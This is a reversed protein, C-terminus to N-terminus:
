EVDSNEAEPGYHNFGSKKRFQGLAECWDASIALVKETVQQLLDPSFFSNRPGLDTNVFEMVNGHCINNRLRVIEVDTRNPKVSALNEFFTQEENFALYKVPLGLKHGQAILANSLVQYPSLDRGVNWERKELLHLTVRLSAEIGNLLSSLAPLYLEQV